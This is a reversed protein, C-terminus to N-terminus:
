YTSSETLRNHIHYHKKVRMFQFSALFTFRICASLKSLLYLHLYVYIQIAGRRSLLVLTPNLTGGFVNYTM